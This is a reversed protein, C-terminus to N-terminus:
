GEGEDVDAEGWETLRAETAGTQGYYRSRLGESGYPREASSILSHLVIQCIKMGFRLPFPNPSANFIELTIEGEFGPDVWGATVHIFLGHRGISSKGSLSGAIDAPLRLRERTHALGFARGPFWWVQGPEIRYSSMTSRYGPSYPDRNEFSRQDVKIDAGLTLDVSAPQFQDDAIAGVVGWGRAVLQRLEGDNLIM